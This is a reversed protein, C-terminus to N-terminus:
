FSFRPSFRKNQLDCEYTSRSRRFFFPITTVKEILTRGAAEVTKIFKARRTFLKGVGAIFVPTGWSENLTRKERKAEDIVDLLVRKGDDRQQHCSRLQLCSM